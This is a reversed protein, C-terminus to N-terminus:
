HYEMPVPTQVVYDVLVVPEARFVPHKTVRLTRVHHLLVQLAVVPACQREGGNPIQRSGPAFPLIQKHDQLQQEPQHQESRHQAM